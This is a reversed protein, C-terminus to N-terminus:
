KQNSTRVATRSITWKRHRDGYEDMWVAGNVLGPEVCIWRARDGDHCPSNNPSAIQSVYVKLELELDCIEFLSWSM